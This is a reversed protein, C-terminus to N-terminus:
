SKFKPRSILGARYPKGAGGHNHAQPHHVAQPSGDPSQSAAQPPRTNQAPPQQSSASRQARELQAALERREEFGSTIVHRLSALEAERAGVQPTHTHTQLKCQSVIM